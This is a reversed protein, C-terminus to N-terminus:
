KSEKQALHFEYLRRRLAETDKIYKPNVGYTQGHVMMSINPNEAVLELAMIIALAEETNFSITSQQTMILDL